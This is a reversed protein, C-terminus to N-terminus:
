LGRRQYNLKVSSGPGCLRKGQVSIEIQMEM